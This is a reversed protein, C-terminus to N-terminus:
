PMAQAGAKSREFVFTESSAFLEFGFARVYLARSQLEILFRGLAFTM